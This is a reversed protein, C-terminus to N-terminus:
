ETSQKGSRWARITFRAPHSAHYLSLPQVLACGEIDAVISEAALFVSMLGRPGHGNSVYLGAQYRQEPYKYVAHTHSQSLYVETTWDSCPVAGFIPLHDPTTPRFAIRGALAGIEAPESEIPKLWSPLAQQATELNTLQGERSLVEGLDPAEFTAGTVALGGGCPSSYGAHTLPVNLKFNQQSESLHTVQGKVPRIPLNLQHNLESNLSGTAVVVVDSVMRKTQGNNAAETEILWETCSSLCAQNNAIVSQCDVDESEIKASVNARDVRGKEANEQAITVVTQGTLVTINEHQLCRQVVSR